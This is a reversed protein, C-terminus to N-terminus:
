EKILHNLSQYLLELLEVITLLLTPGPDDILRFFYQLIQTALKLLQIHNLQHEASKLKLPSTFSFASKRDFNSPLKRSLFENVKHQYKEYYFSRTNQTRYQAFLGKLRCCVCSISMREKRYIISSLQQISLIIRLM